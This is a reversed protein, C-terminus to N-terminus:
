RRRGRFWWWGGVAAAAVVVVVGAVILGTPSGSEPAAPQSATSPAFTASASPEAVQEPLQTLAPGTAKQDNTLLWGEAKEKSPKSEDPGVQYYEWAGLSGDPGVTASWYSWYFGGNTNFDADKPAGDIRTLMTGSKEAQFGASALAAAGTGFEPACKASVTAPDKQDPQVVVWVGDCPPPAAHASTAAAPVLLTLLATAGVALLRKVLASM